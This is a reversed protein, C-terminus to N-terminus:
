AKVGCWRCVFLLLTHAAAVLSDIEVYEDAAHTNAGRAGWYVSPMGFVDRFIFMDGPGEIGEIAPPRGLVAEASSCLEVVLPSTVPTECGPLWRTPFNIVPLLHFLGPASAVLDDIWRFFQADIEERTEGPMAQWYLEIRCSGPVAIPEQNGWPGTVIKTVSVPVPDAAHRAYLPHLPAAARRCNAFGDLRALLHALQGVIGGGLGKEDLIGDAPCCLEIHAVRGGRQAPCIRLFSPESIVAASGNYGALRGALTGNSGGFEEDVVTEFVLDGLLEIGLDRLASLVFLNTAIGAKMDNSGRGYLRNGEVQGGFPNRVWSAHGVPVTDIHGSLVLSRGEGRGQLRAGVNPRDQYDRGPWFLPHETVGPVQDPRYLLPRWGIRELLGAVHLQCDKEAGNPPSNVSSMRVLESTIQTLLERHDVVYEAIRTELEKKV